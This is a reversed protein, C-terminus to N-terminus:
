IVKREYLCIEYSINDQCKKDIINKDWETKDFKPFFTDAHSDEADIETLYLKNAYPLFQKYVMAGGIIFVEEESNKFKDVIGNISSEVVVNEDVSSTSLVIMERGLLKTPLSNYTNRGMVVKHGMTVDKFYKMDEKFHWILKNNKGIEFKRGVSAILSIM